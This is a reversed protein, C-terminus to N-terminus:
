MGLSELVADLNKVFDEFARKYALQWNADSAVQGSNKGHGSITFQNTKGDMVIKLDSRLDAEFDVSWFGPTFWAWFKNIVIEASGDAKADTVTYGRRKFAEAVLQRMEKEVSSDGTLAIDGMAKGYGNRQRGIMTGLQSKSLKTVDGDVSPTSPQPPKNQFERKDVVSTIAVTGKSAAVAQQSTPIELAIQRRGTVCGTSAIIAILLLSGCGARTIAALSATFTHRVRTETSVALSTM